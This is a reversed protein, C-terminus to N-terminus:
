RKGSNFAFHCVLAKWNFNFYYVSLKSILSNTEADYHKIVIQMGKREDLETTVVVKTDMMHGSLTIEKEVVEDSVKTKSVLENFRVSPELCEAVKIFAKEYNDTVERLKM